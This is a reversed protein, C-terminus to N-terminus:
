KEAKQNGGGLRLATSNLTPQLGSYPRAVVTEPVQGTMKGSVGSYYDPTIQRPGIGLVFPHPANTYHRMKAADPPPPTEFIYPYACSRYLMCDTCATDRVVCVTCKLAHGFAGRWTSGAFTPLTTREEQHFEFRFESIPLIPLM